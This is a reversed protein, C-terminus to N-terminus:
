LNQLPIIISIATGKNPSSDINLKGGFMRLREDIGFLGYGVRKTMKKVSPVDFGKGQDEVRIVLMEQQADLYVNAFNVGSHRIVNSLLERVMQIIMIQIDETIDPIRKIQMNVILGYNNKFHSSLWKLAAELNEDKLIPPNLELALNKTIKLAKEILRKTEDMEDEFLLLTNQEIFDYNLHMKIAFLVQQLDEHLLQSFRKRERQESLALARSLSRVQVTRQIVINELNENLLKLTRESNKLAEETRKHGTIDQVAGIMRIPRGESNFSAEAHEVIIRESYDLRNIRYEISYTIRKTIAQQIADNITQRDEPNVHGLFLESTVEVSGPAYGFIRYTEDSWRLPNKNVDDLQLFELEWAGLNAMSGAQKLLTENRRVSEEANKIETIDNFLVAVRRQEPDGFRFAYVSFWRNQLAKGGQEFRLPKGTIAINKYMEFWLEEHDPRLERMWKGRVNVLSSHKEFARNVDIFQYDLPEGPEIRMQIVCFGEDISEFLTRYRWESEKLADEAKKREGIDEITGISFLHNGMSDHIASVTVHAWLFSGDQRVYRKEYVFSNLEGNHVMQNMKLTHELDEQATIEVITKDLLNDKTYGLKCCVYENVNILRNNQDYEVIGIAANDFITRFRQESQLVQFRARNQVFANTYLLWIIGLGLIRHFAIIMSRTDEFILYGFILLISNIISFAFTLRM